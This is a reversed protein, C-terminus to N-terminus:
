QIGEKFRRVSLFASYCLLLTVLAMPLLAEEYFRPVTSIHYFHLVGYSLFLYLIRRGWNPELVVLATLGYAAFGAMFWPATSVLLHSVLEPALVSDLYVFLLTHQLLCLLALAVVGYTLMTATIAGQTMPLHLTLKLRKQTMEPVYQVVAIVLGTFLPQYQLANLFLVDKSLLIEWLHAAGRVDIVRRITLLAYATLALGVLYLVILAWRSKIWEKQILGQIM